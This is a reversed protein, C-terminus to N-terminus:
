KRKVGRLIQEPRRRQFDTKVEMRNVALVLLGEVAFYIIATTVLPFIAEYTRSRVIDSIRTLDAVAIYGVVATAKILSIIESKLLPLFHRAAQPMIVRFFTENEGFGLAYAAEYQEKGVAGVGAKLIGYFGATFILTFCIISVWLGDPLIKGLIVYYLIMLLVIVPMRQVIGFCANTVANTIKNGRRCLLFLALGLAIGGAIAIVTILMTRGIGEIFLKWRDERLFTKEFSERVSQFFGSGETQEGSLMVIVCGGDYYPESFLMSEKREETIAVSSAAFDVSGSAAANLIGAVSYNKLEMGYGYERCFDAAIEVDMGV